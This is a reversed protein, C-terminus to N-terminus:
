NMKHSTKHDADSCKQHACEDTETTNKTSETTNKMFSVNSSKIFKCDNQSVFFSILQFLQETLNKRMKDTVVSLCIDKMDTNEHNKFDVCFTASLM